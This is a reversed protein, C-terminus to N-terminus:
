PRDGGTLSRDAFGSRPPHSGVANGAPPTRGRPISRARSCRSWSSDSYDDAPLNVGLEVDGAPKKGLAGAAYFGYRRAHDRRRDLRPGV